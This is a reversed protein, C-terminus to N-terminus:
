LHGPYLSNTFGFQGNGNREQWRVRWGSMASVWSRMKSKGVMWGKSEYFAIFKEAESRPLGIKSAQLNAEEQTPPRFVKIHPKIDNKTCADADADAHFSMGCKDVQGSHVNDIEKRRKQKYERWYDKRRTPDDAFRYKELNVVFYTMPGKKILRKGDLTDTKSNPDSRCLYDIAKTVEETTAGFIASLVIPNLDILSGEDPRANCIIFPWLAFVMPGAGVMSGSYLSPYIKGYM